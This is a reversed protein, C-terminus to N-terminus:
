QVRIGRLSQSDFGVSITGGTAKQMEALVPQVVDTSLNPPLVIWTTIGGFKSARLHLYRLAMKVEHVDQALAAIPEPYGRVALVLLYRLHPEKRRLDLIKSVTKSVRCLREAAMTGSRDELDVCVGTTKSADILENM